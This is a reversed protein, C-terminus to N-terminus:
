CLFRFIKTSLNNSPVFVMILPSTEHVVVLQYLISHYLIKERLIREVRKEEASNFGIWSAVSFMFFYRPSISIEPFNLLFFSCKTCCNWIHELIFLLKLSAIASLQIWICLFNRMRSSYELWYRVDWHIARVIWTQSFKFSSWDYHFFLIIM